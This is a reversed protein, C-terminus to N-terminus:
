YRRYRSALDALSVCFSPTLSKRIVIEADQAAIEIVEFDDFTGQVINVNPYRSIFDSTANRM